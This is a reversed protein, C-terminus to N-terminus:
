ARRFRLSGIAVTACVKPNDTPDLRGQEVDDPIGADLPCATMYLRNSKNPSKALCCQSSEASVTERYSAVPESVKVDAGDLFDERLDKLCTEM